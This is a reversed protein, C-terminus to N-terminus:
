AAPAQLALLVALAAQQAAQEAVVLAAQGQLVLFRVVAVAVATTPVILLGCLVLVAPSAPQLVVQVVVAVVQTTPVQTLVLAVQTARVQHELVLRVQSPLLGQVVVVLHAMAATKTQSTIEQQEEM